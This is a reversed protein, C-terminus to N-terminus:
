WILDDPVEYGAYPDPEGSESPEKENLLVIVAPERQAIKEAVARPVLSYRGDNGVIALRGLALQHQVRQTVTMKKISAGDVFQYALEGDDCDVTNKEILQKIQAAVADHEAKLQRALNLARDRDAKDVRERKLRGAQESEAASGKPTRKSQKYKDKKIQKAKKGDILGTKLLQEQLSKAM